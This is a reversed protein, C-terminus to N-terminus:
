KPKPKSKHRLNKSPASETKQATDVAETEGGHKKKDDGGAVLTYLTPGGVGTLIALALYQSGKKRRNIETAYNDGLTTFFEGDDPQQANVSARKAASSDTLVLSECLAEFDLRVTTRMGSRAGSDYLNCSLKLADKPLDFPSVPGDSTVFEGDKNHGIFWPIVDDKKAAELEHELTAMDQVYRLKPGLAELRGLSRKISNANQSGFIIKNKKPDRSAFVIVRSPRQPVGNALFYDADIVHSVGHQALAIAEEEGLPGGSFGYEKRVFIVQRIAPQRQRIEQAVADISAFRKTEKGDWLSYSDGDSSLRVLQRYEPGGTAFTQGYVDEFFKIEDASIERGHSLKLRNRLGPSSLDRPFGSAELYARVRDTIVKSPAVNPLDKLDWLVKQQIFEAADPGLFRELQPKKQAFERLGDGRQALFADVAAFQDPDSALYQPADALVEIDFEVGDDNGAEGREFRVEDTGAGSPRIWDRAMAEKLDVTESKPAAGPPGIPLRKTVKIGGTSQSFTHTSGPPDLHRDLCKAPVSASGAGSRISVRGPTLLMPQVGKALAEGAVFLGLVAPILLRLRLRFPIAKLMSVVM